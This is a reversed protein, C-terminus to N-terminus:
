TASGAATVAIMRRVLDVASDQLFETTPKLAAMAADGAAARAAAAGAADLAADWAADRAADRAAAAGAAYRAAYRASAARAVAWAANVRKGAAAAGAMDAIANLNRLAQAHGHLVPVLDLWKPAFVRVLWDLALYSRHEEVEKTSRTGVILPILPKLLRDRDADGPLSDNWAIMFETIVPCACQPHDAWPEGAVYSVLEMVCSGEDMSNHSGHGLSINQAAAWREQQDASMARGLGSM